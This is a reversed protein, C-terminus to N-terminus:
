CIPIVAQANGFLDFYDVYGFIGAFGFIIAGLGIILRLFLKPIAILLAMGVFVILVGVLANGIGSFDPISVFMELGHM